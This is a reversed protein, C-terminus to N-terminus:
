KLVDRSSFWDDAFKQAEIPGENTLLWIAQRYARVADVSIPRSRFM